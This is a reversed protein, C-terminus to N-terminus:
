GVGVNGSDDLKIGGWVLADNEVRLKEMQGKIGWGINWGKVTEVNVLKSIAGVTKGFCASVVVGIVLWVGIM